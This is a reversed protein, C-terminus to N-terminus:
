MGKRANFVKSGGKPISLSKFDEGLYHKGLQVIQGVHYPVHALQRAIAQAVSHPETRIHVIRDMDAMTLPDLAQFLRDWGENWRQLLEERTAITGEFEADRTRWEKEGDTTLFDTWRSLMNGHLHNVIVAISNTEPRDTRFLDSDPLQAFTRDGLGRYYAFEKRASEIFDLITM